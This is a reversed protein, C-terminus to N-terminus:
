VEVYTAVPETRALRYLVTDECGLARSLRLRAPPEAFGLLSTEWSPADHPVFRVAIPEHRRRALGTVLRREEDNLHPVAM